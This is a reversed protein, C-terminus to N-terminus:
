SKEIEKLKDITEIASKHLIGIGGAKNWDEINEDRDDILVYGKRAFKRKEQRPALVLKVTPLNNVVWLQKGIRSTVDKSPASLLIPRYKGINNWLLKGDPMWPLNAWFGIGALNVPTWFGPFDNKAGVLHIGTLNEYGKNFDVLVGDLDVFLKRIQM